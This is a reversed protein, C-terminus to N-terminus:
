HLMILRRLTREPLSPPRRFLVVGRRDAALQNPGRFRPPGIAGRQSVMRARPTTPRQCVACPVSPRARSRAGKPERVPNRRRAEKHEEARVEKARLREEKRSTERAEVKVEATVGLDARNSPRTTANAAHSPVIELLTAGSIAIIACFRVIILIRCTLPGGRRVMMRRREAGVRPGPTLATAVTAVPVKDVELRAAGSAM